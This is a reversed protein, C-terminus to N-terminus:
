RRKKGPRHAPLETREAVARARKGAFATCIPLLLQNGAIYIGNLQKIKM